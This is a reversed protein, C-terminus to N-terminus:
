WLRLGDFDLESEEKCSLKIVLKVPHAKTEFHRDFAARPTNYDRVSGMMGQAGKKRSKQSIQQRRPVLEATLTKRQVQESVLAAEVMAIKALHTVMGAAALNAEEATNTLNEVQVLCRYINIDGPKHTWSSWLLSWFWASAYIFSKKPKHLIEM